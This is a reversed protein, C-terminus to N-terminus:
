IPTDSAITSPAPPTRFSTLAADRLLARVDRWRRRRVKGYAKAFGDRLTNARHGHREFLVGIVFWTASPFRHQGDLRAGLRERAVVEDQHQGLLDQLRALAELLPRVGRGYLDAHFELAYRLSKARIRTKHLVAHDARADVLKATKTFKAFRQEVLTPALQIAPPSQRKLPGQALVRAIRASLQQYRGSDLFKLLRARAAHRQKELDLELERLATDLRPDLTERERMLTEFYVDLDRVEGLARGLRALPERLARARAPLEDHWLDLAARLRRIAVRQDHLAEHDHGLRTGPENALAQLWQRRLTVFALEAATLRPSPTTPGLDPLGNNAGDRALLAVEFATEVTRFGPAVDLSALLPDAEPHRAQRVIIRALAEGERSQSQELDITLVPEEDDRGLVRSELWADRGAIKTLTATGLLSRIQEGLEGQAARLSADSEDAVVAAAGSAKLPSGALPLTEADYGDTRRTLRLCLGARLFRRDATDFYAEQIQVSQQRRDHLGALHALDRLHGRALEIDDVEWGIRKAIM